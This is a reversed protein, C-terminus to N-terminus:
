TDCAKFKNALPENPEVQRRVIHTPMLKTWGFGPVKLAMNNDAPPFYGYIIPPTSPERTRGVLARSEQHCERSVCKDM